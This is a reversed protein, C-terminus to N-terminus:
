SSVNGEPPLMSEVLRLFEQRSGDCLSNLHRHVQQLSSMDGHGSVRLTISQARLSFFRRIRQALNPDVGDAVLECREQAHSEATPVTKSSLTSVM